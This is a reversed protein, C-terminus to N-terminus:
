LIQYIGLYVRGIVQGLQETMEMMSRQLNRVVDVLPERDTTVHSDGDRIADRILTEDYPSVRMGARSTSIGTTSTTVAPTPQGCQRARSALNNLETAIGWRTTPSTSLSPANTDVSVGTALQDVTDGRACNDMYIRLVQAKKM